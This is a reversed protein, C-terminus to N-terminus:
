DAENEAQSGYCSTETGHFPIYFGNDYKTYMIILRVGTIINVLIILKVNIELAITFDNYSRRMKHVLTAYV